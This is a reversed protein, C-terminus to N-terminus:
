SLITCLHAREFPKTYKLPASLNISSCMITLCVKKTESALYIKGTRSSFHFWSMIVGAAVEIVDNLSADVVLARKRADYITVSTIAYLLKPKLDDDHAIVAAVEEGM